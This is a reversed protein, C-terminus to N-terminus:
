RISAFTPLSHSFAGVVAYGKWESRGRFAHCVGLMGSGLEVLYAVIKAVLMWLMKSTHLVCPRQIGDRRVRFLELQYLRSRILVGPGEALCLWFM